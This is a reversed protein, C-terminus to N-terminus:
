TSFLRDCPISYICKLLVRILFFFDRKVCSTSAVRWQHFRIIHLAPVALHLSTSDLTLIWEECFLLVFLDVDDYRHESWETQDAGEESHYPELEVNVEDFRM